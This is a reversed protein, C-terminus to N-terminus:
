RVHPSGFAPLSSSLMVRGLTAQAPGSSQPGRTHRYAASPMRYGLFGPGIKLVFPPSPPTPRPTLSFLIAAVGRRISQRLSREIPSWDNAWEPYLVRAHDFKEIADEAVKRLQRASILDQSIDHLKLAADPYCSFIYIGSDALQQRWNEPRHRDPELGMSEELPIVQHIMVARLQSGAWPCVPRKWP